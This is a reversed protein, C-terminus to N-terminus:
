TSLSGSMSCDASRCSATSFSTCAAFSAWAWVMARVSMLLEVPMGSKADSHVFFSMLGTAPISNRLPLSRCYIPSARLLLPSPFEVFEQRSKVEPFSGTGKGAGCNESDNTM